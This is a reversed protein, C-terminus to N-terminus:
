TSERVYLSDAPVIAARGEAKVPSQSNKHERRFWLLVCSPVEGKSKAAAHLQWGGSDGTRLRWRSGAHSELDSRIRASSRAIDWTRCCRFVPASQSWSIRLRRIAKRHDGRASMLIAIFTFCVSGRDDSKPASASSASSAARSIGGPGSRMSANFAAPM